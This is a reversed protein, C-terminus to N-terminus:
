PTTGEDLIARGEGPGADSGRSQPLQRQACFPPPFHGVLVTVAPGGAQDVLWCLVGFVCVVGIQGM